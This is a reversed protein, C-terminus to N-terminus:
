GLGVIPPLEALSDLLWDAHAVELEARSASGTAVVAVAVGAARAVTVDMPMDGVYVAEVATAGLRALATALMEPDPKPRSTEEPGLVVAFYAGLGLHALIDRCFYGPKNSCVALAVGAGALRRVTEGAEPLLRTSALFVERYHGRFLAVGEEVLEPGMADGILSELGRGVMRRVEAYPFPAMGKAARAFNLSEHIADYSDVLTGDLDFLVARPTVAARCAGM